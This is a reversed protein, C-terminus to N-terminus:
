LLKLLKSVFSVVTESSQKVFSEIILLVIIVIIM